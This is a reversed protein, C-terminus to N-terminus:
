RGRLQVHMIVNRIRNITADLMSKYWDEDHEIENAGKRLAIPFRGLRNVYLQDARSFFARNSLLLDVRGCWTEYDIALQRRHPDDAYNKNLIEGIARGVEEALEDVAKQRSVWINYRFLFWLCFLGIIVVYLGVWGNFLYDKWESHNNLFEIMADEPSKGFVWAILAGCAAAGVIGGFAIVAALALGSLRGGIYQWFGTKSDTM